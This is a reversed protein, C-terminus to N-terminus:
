KRTGTTGEGEDVPARAPGTRKRREWAEEARTGACAGARTGKVQGKLM